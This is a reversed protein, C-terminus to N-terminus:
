GNVDILKEDNKREDNIKMFYFNQEDLTDYFVGLYDMKIHAM